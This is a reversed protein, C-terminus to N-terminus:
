ISRILAWPKRWTTRLAKSDYADKLIGAIRDVLAPDMGAPGFFGRNVGVVVDYGLESCTPVDPMFSVPESTTTALCLLDGGEISSKVESSQCLIVDVQGGMGATRVKAGGDFPVYNVEIGAANWVMASAIHNFGNTGSAGWQLEGPNQKAYNVLDDFTKFPSDPPVCIANGDYVMTSLQTFETPSVENVGGLYYAYMAENNNCLMTYGDPDAHFVEMAGIGGSSGEINTVVVTYGMEGLASQVARALLDQGGGPAWPVVINITESPYDDYGSADSSSSSDSDTACGTLVVLTLSCICLLAFIKKMM